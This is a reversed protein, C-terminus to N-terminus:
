HTRLRSALSHCSLREAWPEHPEEASHQADECPSVLGQAEKRFRGIPDSLEQAICAEPKAVIGPEGGAKGEAAVLDHSLGRKRSRRGM